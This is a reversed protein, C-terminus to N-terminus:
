SGRHLGGLSFTRSYRHPRCDPSHVRRGDTLTHTNGIELIKASLVYRKFPPNSNSTLWPLEVTTDTNHVNPKVGVDFKKTSKGIITNDHIIIELSDTRTNCISCEAISIPHNAAIKSIQEQQETTFGVFRLTAEGDTIRGDFCKRKSNPLLSFSTVFGHLTAKCGSDTPTSITSISDFAITDSQRRKGLPGKFAM